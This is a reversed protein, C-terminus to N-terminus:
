GSGGGDSNSKRAPWADPDTTLARTENSRREKHFNREGGRGPAPPEDTGHKRRLSKM